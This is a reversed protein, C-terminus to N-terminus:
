IWNGCILGLELLHPRIGMLGLEWLHSGIGVFSAWEWLEWPVWNGCILGLELMYPRGGCILGSASNGHSGIGLFSVFNGCSLGM